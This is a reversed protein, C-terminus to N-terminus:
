QTTDYTSPSRRPLITPYGYYLVNRWGSSNSLIIITIIFVMDDFNSLLSIYWLKWCFLQSVYWYMVMTAMRTGHKHKLGTCDGDCHPTYRDPATDNKGRGFYQISMLDEQGHEELNLGLVHNTYDYVRRSLRAIPNGADELEWPVKIGAQMAKRHESYKSGGSGDAVTARHLLPVAAAEMSDCEVQDIFDQVVHIQSAPRDHLILVNRPQEDRAGTWVETAVPESTEALADECTYNELKAAVDRRVSAQFAVEEQAEVLNTTVSEEVCRLLIKLSEEVNDPDVQRKVQNQCHQVLDGATAKAKTTSDEL